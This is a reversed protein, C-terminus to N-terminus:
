AAKEVVGVLYLAREFDGETIGYDGRVLVEAPVGTLRSRVWNRWRVPIKHKVNLRVLFREIRRAAPHLIYGAAEPQMKQGFLRAGPGFCALAAVFGAASFERYHNRNMPSGDPGKFSVEANTTACIFHGGSKLVRRAEELFPRHDPLHELVENCVVADLSQSPFPLAECTGVTFAIGQQSYRRRAHKMLTPKIDLGFACRAREALIAVGYGEGCGADLVVQGGVWTAAWRYFAQHIAVMYQNSKEYGPVLFDIDAFFPDLVRFDPRDLNTAHARM